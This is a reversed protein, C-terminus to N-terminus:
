GKDEVPKIHSQWIWLNPLHILVRLIWPSGFFGIIGVALALVLFFVASTGVVRKTESVDGAGIKQGIMITAAITVGFIASILFFMIINGNSAATM